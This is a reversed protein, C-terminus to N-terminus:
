YVRIASSDIATFSDVVLWIGGAVLLGVIIGIFFRTARKYVRGGGWKLLSVKILWALFISFWLHKMIWGGQAMFGLPHLPWWPWMRYAVTLLLMVGAGVGTWTYGTVSPATPNNMQYAVDGWTARPFWQFYQAHLNLGGIRHTIWLTMLLSCVLGVMVAALLPLMARNGRAGARHQLFASNAAPGMLFTLLDGAWIVTLGVAVTGALGLYSSGV